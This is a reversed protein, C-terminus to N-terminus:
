LAPSLTFTKAMAIELATAAGKTRLGEEEISTCRWITHNVVIQTVNGSADPHLPLGAYPIPPLCRRQPPRPLWAPSTM